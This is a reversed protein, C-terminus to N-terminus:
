KYLRSIFNLKDHNVVQIYDRNMEILQEKKFESLLRTTTERVSGIYNALENRTLNIQQDTQRPNIKGDLSLLADALRGRVPKYALDLM